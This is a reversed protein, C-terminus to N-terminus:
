SRAGMIDTLALPRIVTGADGLVTQLFFSVRM